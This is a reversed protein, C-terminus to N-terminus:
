SKLLLATYSPGSPLNLPTRQRSVVPRHAALAVVVPMPAFFMMTMDSPAAAGIGADPAVSVGAMPRFLVAVYKMVKWSTFALGSGDPVVMVACSAPM